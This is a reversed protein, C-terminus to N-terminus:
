DLEGNARLVVRCSELYESDTLHFEIDNLTIRVRTPLEKEFGDDSPKNLYSDLESHWDIEKEVKRHVNGEKFGIALSAEDRYTFWEEDGFNYYLEGREFEDRLDFISETVKEYETRTRKPEVPIAKAKAMIAKWGCVEWVNFNVSEPLLSYTIDGDVKLWAFFDSDTEDSYHTAGEPIDHKMDEFTKFEKM